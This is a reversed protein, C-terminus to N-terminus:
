KLYRTMALFDKSLVLGGFKEGTPEGLLKM